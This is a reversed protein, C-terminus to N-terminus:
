LDYALECLRMLHWYEINISKPRIKLWINLARFEAITDNRRQFSQIRKHVGNLDSKLYALYLQFEGTLRRWKESKKSSQSKNKTTVDLADNLLKHLEKEKLTSEDINMTDVLIIVRKSNELRNYTNAADNFQGNKKYVVLLEEPVHDKLLEIQE